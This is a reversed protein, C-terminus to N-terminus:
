LSTMGQDDRQLSASDELGLLKLLHAHSIKHLDLVTLFDITKFEADFAPPSCIKAGLHLYAQMLKPTKPANTKGKALLRCDLHRLPVTPFDPSLLNERAFVEFLAVGEAPTQSTLSSCGALYRVGASFAYHAIGRWLLSIVLLNRAHRAVCARGLEIFEFRVPEFVSFEFERECYYGRNCLAQAGSQMRYTGVIQGSHIEEVILHQCVADFEDEDRGTAHATDLGEKLEVNFIQYRLKQAKKIDDANMAFRVRFGGKTSTWDALPITGGGAIKLPIEPRSVKSLIHTQVTGVFLCSGSFSCHCM